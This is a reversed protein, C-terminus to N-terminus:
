LVAFSSLSGDENLCGWNESESWLLDGRLCGLGKATITNPNHWWGRSLKVLEVEWSYPM